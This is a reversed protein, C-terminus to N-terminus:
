GHVETEARRVAEIFAVIKAEDKGGNSEVGSAVDVGWPQVEAVLKSVNAPTLGGAIIVPFRAAAERALQWDYTQGTGGYANGVKSDLLCILKEPSLLQYGETIRDLIHNINAQRDNGAESANGTRTIHIAKIVPREIQRCYQWHENGSLQVYDLHCQEAIRNIEEVPRNVFVGVIAPRNKLNHVADVVPLAQALSVQRSSSAFVLGIFDAGARAAALAHQPQTLGCIKIRTM